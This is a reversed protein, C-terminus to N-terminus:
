PTWAGLIRRLGRGAGGLGRHSRSASRRSAPPARRAAFWRPSDCTPDLARAVALVGHGPRRRGFVCLRRRAPRGGPGSCRQARDGGRGRPARRRRSSGTRRCCGPRRGCSRNPLGARTRSGWTRIAQCRQARRRAQVGSCQGCPALPHLVALDGERSRGDDANVGEVIGAVEHGPRVPYSAGPPLVMGHLLDRDTACVGCALVRVRAYGPPTEPARACGSSTSTWSSMVCREGTFSEPGYGGRRDGSVVPATDTRCIPHSPRRSRTLGGDVVLTTGTVYESAPSLLFLACDAVEQVTGLRQKPIKPIVTELAPVRGQSLLLGLLRVRHHRRQGRQRQNRAAGARGGHLPGLRSRRRPSGLNAYTPFVRLSGYSSLSSSGGARDMLRAARQAGLVFARVNLNFTRELHHVGLEEIPRFKSASANSIFFDLRGFREHVQEFMATSRSSTRWTPASRSARHAGLARGRRRDDRAAGRQAPLQHGAHSRPCRAVARAGPRDGALRGHDARDQRRLRRSAVARASPLRRSRIPEGRLLERAITM